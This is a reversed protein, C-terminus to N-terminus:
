PTIGIGYFVKVDLWIGQQTALTQIEALHEKKFRDMAQADLQNVLGRFGAHWIVDWWENADKLYYGLDKCEVRIDKFGAQQYLATAKDETAIRKWSLPPKEVGYQQICNFFLDAMPLFADDYFGCIAVKGGPKVKGAIHKLQSEMDEVFFIGFACTAVDFYHQPFTLAQMDMELFSANHIDAAQAKARAQELMGVSFDIGTVHGQGIGQAVELAAYGTGTAVDLVNENGKLGLCSVLHKASQMFFRLAHNDYGGAVTNFTERIMVKREQERM